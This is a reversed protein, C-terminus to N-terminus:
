FQRGWEKCATAEEPAVSLAWALIWSANLLGVQSVGPTSDYLAKSAPM